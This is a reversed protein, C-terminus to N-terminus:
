RLIKRVFAVTFYSMLFVGMFGEISSIWRFIGVPYYDGYGITFFTIAGFYFAKGYVSLNEHEGINAVIAGLGTFSLVVYLLSFLVYLVAMSFMVRLPETAYLGMKDFVLLKFWYYPYEWLASTSSEEIREELIAKQEYRKFEIYAKDEDSYRGNKNFNEKLIRFQEAKIWNTSNPQHKILSPVNNIHWDIDIMGLLRMHSMNLIDIEVKYDYTKLDIIDRVVTNSLDILECKAVRLDFYDDLHCSRLSLSKFKSRNFSVRSTSGKDFSAKDFSVEVTSMEAREFNINGSGFDVWKITFKSKKLESGEFSIDGNEFKARNFNVKSYGFDVKSFDVTGSGFHANELSLFGNGFTSFHFDIEGDGFNALKFSTKGDNFRTNIFKVEGGGFDTNSFSKSGTGFDTDQFNKEGKAFLVNKFNVDGSIKTVNSFDFSGNRFISSNFDISGTGFKSSQFTVIGNSFYAGHFNVDYDGFDVFSFDIQFKSNFFSFKASIGKIAFLEQKPIIRSRRYATISFNSIYCNDLNLAEQMEILDYIKETPLYGYDSSFINNQNEDYITIIATQPFSFGSDNVFIRDVINVVYRNGSSIM